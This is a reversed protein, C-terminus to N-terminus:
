TDLNAVLQWMPRLYLESRANGHRHCLGAGAVAILSRAQPRGYAVPVVRCLFFLIFHNKTHQLALRNEKM